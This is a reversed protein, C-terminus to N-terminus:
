ERSAYAAAAVPVGRSSLVLNALGDQLHAGQIGNLDAGSPRRVLFTVLVPHENGTPGLSVAAMIGAEKDTTKTKYSFPGIRSVARRLTGGASVASLLTHAETPRGDSTYWLRAFGRAWDGWPATVGAGLLAALDVHNVEAQAVQARMARLALRVSWLAAARYGVNGLENATVDIGAYTSAVRAMLVRDRATTRAGIEVTSLERQLARELDGPRMWLSAYLAAAIVGQNSSAIVHRLPADRTVEDGHGVNAPCYPRLQQDYAPARSPVRAEVLYDRGLGPTALMGALLFAKMWSGAEVRERLLVEDGGALALLQGSPDLVAAAVQLDSALQPRSALVAARAIAIANSLERSLVPDRGALAARGLDPRRALALPQQMITAVQAQTLWGREVIRDLKRAVRAEALDPRRFFAGPARVSAVVFMAQKENLRDPDGFLYASCARFGVYSAGPCPLHALYAQVLADPPQDVVELALRVQLLKRAITREAARAPDMAMRALGLPITTGGEVFRRARASRVLARGVARLDIPNTLRADGMGVTREYLREDEAGVLFLGAAREPATRRFGVEIGDVFSRLRVRSAEYDRWFWGPRLLAIAAMLTSAVLLAVISFKCLRRIM